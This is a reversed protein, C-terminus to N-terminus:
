AVYEISIKVPNTGKTFFFVLKDTCKSCDVTIVKSGDTSGMGQMYGTAGWEGNGIWLQAEGLVSTDAVTFKISSYKAKLEALQEAGITVSSDNGTCLSDIVLEGNEIAAYSCNHSKTWRATENSEIFELESMTLNSSPQANNDTSNICVMVSDTEHGAAAFAALDIHIDTEGACGYEKWYYNWEGPSTILYIKSIDTTGDEAVAKLHFKIHTYGALLADDILNRQITINGSTINVIGNDWTNTGWGGFRFYNWFGGESKM